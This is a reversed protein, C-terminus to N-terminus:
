RSTMLVLVTRSTMIVDHTDLGLGYTDVDFDMGLRACDYSLYSECSVKSKLRDVFPLDTVLETNLQGVCLTRHLHSRAQWLGNPM